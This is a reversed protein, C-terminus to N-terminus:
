LHQNVAKLIYKWSIHKGCSIIIEFDSEPTGATIKYM